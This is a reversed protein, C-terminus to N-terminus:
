RGTYILSVTKPSPPAIPPLSVSHFTHRAVRVTMAAPEHGVLELLELPEVLQEGEQRAEEGAGVVDLVGVQPGLDHTM